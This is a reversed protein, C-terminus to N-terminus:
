AVLRAKYKDLIGGSKNKKRLVYKCWIAKREQCLDTLECVGNKNIFNIENKMTKLWEFSDEAKTAEEFNLPNDQSM